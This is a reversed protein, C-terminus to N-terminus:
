ARRPFQDYVSFQLGLLSKPNFGPAACYIASNACPGTTAQAPLYRPALLGFPVYVTQWTTTVNTLLKGSNYEDTANSSPSSAAGGATGDATASRGTPSRSNRTRRFARVVRQARVWKSEVDFVVGDYMSTTTDYPNKTKTTTATAPPAPLVQAISTGFGVYNIHGSSTSHMAWKNMGCTGANPDTSDM